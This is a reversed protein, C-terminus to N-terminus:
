VKQRRPDISINLCCCNSLAKGCGLVMEFHYLTISPVGTIIDSDKLAIFNLNAQPFYFNNHLSNSPSLIGVALSARTNISVFKFSFQFIGTPNKRVSPLVSLCNLVSTFGHTLRRLSYYETKNKLKQHNEM